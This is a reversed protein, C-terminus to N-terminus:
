IVQKQYDLNLKSVPNGELNLEQLHSLSKLNGFSSYDNLRNNSIFFKELKQLHQMNEVNEILNIKLNLEVLNVQHELNEIKQILNNALNLIRM